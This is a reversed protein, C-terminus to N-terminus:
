STVRRRLMWARHRARSYARPTLGAAIRNGVHRWYDPAALEPRIGDAELVDIASLARQVRTWGVVAALVDAGPRVGARTVFAEGPNVARLIDLESSTTGYDGGTWRVVAFISGPAFILTRRRRDHRIEDAPAGFRLWHEIRGQWWVLDLAAGRLAVQSM